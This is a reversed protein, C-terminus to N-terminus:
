RNMWKFPEKTMFKSGACDCAITHRLEAGGINQRRRTLSSREALTKGAVLPFFRRFPSEETHRLEAGCLKTM